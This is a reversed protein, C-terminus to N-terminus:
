SRLRRARGARARRPGQAQAVAARLLQTRTAAAATPITHFPAAFTLLGARARGTPPLAAAACRAGPPRCGARRLGNALKGHLLGAPGLPLPATWAEGSADVPEALPPEALPPEALPPEGAAAVEAEAEEEAEM